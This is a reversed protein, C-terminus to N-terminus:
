TAPTAKKGTVNKCRVRKQRGKPTERKQWPKKEMAGARDGNVKCNGGKPGRYAGARYFVAHRKAGTGTARV